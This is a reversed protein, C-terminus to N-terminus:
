TIAIAHESEFSNRSTNVPLGITTLNSPSGPPDREDTDLSNRSKLGIPCFGRKSIINRQMPTFAHNM